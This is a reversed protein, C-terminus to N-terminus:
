INRFKFASSGYQAKRSLTQLIRIGKDLHLFIKSPHTKSHYSNNQSSSMSVWQQDTNEMFYSDSLEDLNSVVTGMWYCISFKIGTKLTYEVRDKCTEVSDRYSVEDFCSQRSPNIEVNGEDKTKLYFKYQIEPEVKLPLYSKRFIYNLYRCYRNIYRTKVGYLTIIELGERCSAIYHLGIDIGNQNLLSIGQKTIEISNSPPTEGLNVSMISRNNKSISIFDEKAFHTYPITKLIYKQLCMKLKGIGRERLQNFNELNFEFKFLKSGLGFKIIQNEQFTSLMKQLRNLMSSSFDLNFNEPYEVAIKELM